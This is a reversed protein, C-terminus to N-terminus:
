FGMLTLLHKYRPDSRIPDLKPDVQITQMALEHDTIARELSAFTRDFDGLVLHILALGRFDEGNEVEANDYSEIIKRAEEMKGSCALIYAQANTSKFHYGVQKGWNDNMELARDFMGLGLWALSMLRYIGSLKSDLELASNAMEIAAHYKRQYYLAFGKDRIMAINVPDLEIARSISLVAEDVQGMGLLWETYWHHGQAYDPKMGIGLRFERGANIWDRGDLMLLSALSVHAEALGSDLELAKLVAAKSKPYFGRRAENSHEGLLNYSDALGAWALAYEPDIEIAKQFYRVSTAMSEGTRKNWLYKGQLYFQYAEPDVTCKKVIEQRDNEMLTLKLKETVAVAIDEQIAFIDEMNRDYRESWLHYGTNLDILQVTIRFRNGFKRVSGELVANVGLKRGVERLDINKGKFQFSSTRGAVKLEKIRSLSNLIEEAMGDSFYEQDPDNSLNMFPLVAISKEPSKVLAQNQPQDPLLPDESDSVRYIKVPERVNKLMEQKVFTSSIDSKNFLNHHVSESVYITGPEALAQIRSAINVGDGFVDNNEFVVEGLHIGIRLQFAKEEASKEQIEIAACVADSVSSFSALMGDGLEKVLQGRYKEIVPKQIDRNKQLLSFARKENAGMLATYGVIDTFMIAALQRSQAM